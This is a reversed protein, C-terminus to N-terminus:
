APCVQPGTAASIWACLADEQPLLPVALGGSFEEFAALNLRNVGVLVPIDRALAEAIAERFGRGEAEHKGFKNVILVDAGAALRTLVIGM